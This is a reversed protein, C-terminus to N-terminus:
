LSFVIYQGKLNWTFTDRLKWHEVEIELRIPVLVEDLEALLKTQPKSLKLVPRSKRKGAAREREDEMPMRIKFHPVSAANPREGLWDVRNAAMADRFIDQAVMRRTTRDRHYAHEYADDRLVWSAVKRQELTSMKPPLSAGLPIDEQKTFGVSIPLRHSPLSSSSVKELSDSPKNPSTPQSQQTLSKPPSNSGGTSPPPSDLTHGNTLTPQPPPTFPSESRDVPHM